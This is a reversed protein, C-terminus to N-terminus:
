GHGAGPRVRPDVATYLVDAALSGAIAITTVLLVYGQVVPYDRVLISEVVYQGIGPWAFVAEAVVSGTLLGIVNISLLTIAPLLALRFTHRLWVQREALGKARAYTVHPRGRVELLSARLVRIGRPSLALGLTLAPLVLRQPTAAGAVTVWQLHIAFLWLLLMGLWFPPVAVFVLAFARVAHDWLRGAAAASTLGLSLVLATNVVFAAGALAATAPLRQRLEDLVPRRTRFSNGLDGRVTRGLWSVYQAPLPQDLGFRRRLETRQEATLATQTAGSTRPGLMVDVPDGPAARVLLFALTAAAWLVPLAVLIRRGLYALV